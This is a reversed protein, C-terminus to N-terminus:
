DFRRNLAALSSLKEQQQEVSVTEPSALNLIPVGDSRFPTGQYNAPPFGASWNKPGGIPSEDDLLIVFAPLDQSHSGPGYTVWGGMSPRGALISGTNMQCVSGVHNLGDAWCSRIVVMDDVHAAIHAYWDSVEIGSQGCRRFTRRSPLLANLTTGMATIPRG